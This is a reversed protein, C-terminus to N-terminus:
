DPPTGKTGLKHIGVAKTSKQVPSDCPKIQLIIIASLEYSIFHM